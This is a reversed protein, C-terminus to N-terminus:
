MRGGVRRVGDVGGVVRSVGGVLRSTQSNEVTSSKQFYQDKM